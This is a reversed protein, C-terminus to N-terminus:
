IIGFKKLLKTLGFAAAGGLIVLLVVGAYMKTKQWWSLSRPVEKIVPYPVPISDHKAQYITDHVEKEVYKTLWKRSEVFITDGKTWEHVYISDHVKISDRQHKTIYTTDIRVKEVTVYETQKCGVVMTMLVFCILAAILLVLKEWPNNDEYEM